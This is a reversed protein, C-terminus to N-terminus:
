ATVAQETLCRDYNAEVEAPPFIASLLWLFKAYPITYLFLFRALLRTKVLHRASATLNSSM